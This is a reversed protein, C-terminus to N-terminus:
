PARVYESSHAPCVLPWQLCSWFWCHIQGVRQPATEPPTWAPEHLRRKRGWQRYYLSSYISWPRTDRKEKITTASWTCHAMPSSTFSNMPPISIPGPPRDFCPQGPSSLIGLTPQWNLRHSLYPHTQGRKTQYRMKWRCGYSIPLRTYLRNTLYLSHSCTPPNTKSGTSSTSATYPKMMPSLSPSPLPNCLAQRACPRNSPSNWHLPPFRKCFPTSSGMM